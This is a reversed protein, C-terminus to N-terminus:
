LFSPSSLYKLLTNLIIIKPLPWKLVFLFPFTGLLFPRKMASGLINHRTWYVTGAGHYTSESPTPGRAATRNTKPAPLIIVSHSIRSRSCTHFIDAASFYSKRKLAKRNGHEWWICFAHRKLGVNRQIAAYAKKSYQQKAVPSVKNKVEVRGTLWKNM